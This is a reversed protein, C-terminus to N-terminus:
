AAGNADDRHFCRRRIVRFQEGEEIGDNRVRDPLVRYGHPPIRHMEDRRLSTASYGM